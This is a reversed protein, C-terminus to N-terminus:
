AERRQMEHLLTRSKGEAEEHLQLTTVFDDPASGWDKSLIHRVLESIGPFSLEDRMFADVAIENAANYAIPYGGGAAITEYALSLMPYRASDPRHFTLETATFDIAGFPSEATHPYTLANQIPIRMDPASIQAYYSGEYTRVLSHICSQPHVLVEIRESPFDFLHHAEIVELGKNAMSASDITIKAGMDWTPHRLADHVTLSPFQELPITRFAGGSATIVLREVQESPRGKLLHFLASHESDVPLITAGSRAALARILPGAMVITEKNALALDFGQQLSWVSPMLGPSGAIGNVVIDAETEEILHRVADGGTWTVDERPGPLGTAARYPINLEEAVSLMQDVRTHCSIGVIRYGSGLNRVAEVTNFGISGTAGLLIIRTEGM